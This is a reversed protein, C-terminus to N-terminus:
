AVHAHTEGGAASRTAKRLADLILARDPAGGYSVLRQSVLVVPFAALGHWMFLDRVQAALAEGAADLEGALTPLTRQAQTITVVLLPWDVQAAALAARLETEAVADAAQTGPACCSASILVAVEPGLARRLLKGDDDRPAKRLLGFM